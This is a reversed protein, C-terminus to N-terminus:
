RQEGTLLTEIEGTTQMDVLSFLVRRLAEAEEGLACAARAGYLALYLHARLLRLVLSMFQAHASNSSFPATGGTEFGAAHAELFQQLLSFTRPRLDVCFPACASSLARGPPATYAISFLSGACIQRVGVGELGVVRRPAEVPNVFNDQGCQGMTNSGWAWVENYQSLALVHSDGVALDVMVHAALDAVPVPVLSSAASARLGVGWWLVTGEWTLALSFSTGACVKRVRYRQLGEILRPATVKSTDDHGLKGGIGSGMSWVSYGDQSLVLTHSEGCSVAGVEGLQVLAPSLRPKLDGHGLRGHDGEGWTYLLGDETVAASHNHGASVQVVRKGYLPGTILKPRRQSLTNGHGLKGHEGVGWSYVQLFM